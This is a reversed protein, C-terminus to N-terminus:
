SNGAKVWGAIQLMRKVQHAIAEKIEDGPASGNATVSTGYPNGGAAFITKDTFGPAAIIAGWHFMTTYFSLLTAEQGGHPNQASSTATVVKNTLKGNFWLGGTTDLFAQVQSPVNGYRTPICFMLADAWELDALSVTPIDKAAETHAKWQPNADIAAQPATEAIKLLKVEGAHQQAAEKAWNASQFNTGTSSYYIIALKVTSM